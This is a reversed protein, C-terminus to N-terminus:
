SDYAGLIEFLEYAREIFHLTKEGAVLIETKESPSMYFCKGIHVVKNRTRFLKELDNWLDRHKEKISYGVLSELPVDLLDVVSIERVKEIIYDYFRNGVKRAKSSIFRDTFIECAIAACVIAMNFNGSLAEDQADLLFARALDTEFEGELDGCIDKWTKLNILREERKLPKEGLPKIVQSSDKPRGTKM